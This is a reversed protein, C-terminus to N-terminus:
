FLWVFIFLVVRSAIRCAKESLVTTPCCERVFEDLSPYGNVLAYKSVKSRIWHRCNTKSLKRCSRLASGTWSWVLAPMNHRAKSWIDRRGDVVQNQLLHLQYPCSKWGWITWSKVDAVGQHIHWSNLISRWRWNWHRCRRFWGPGCFSIRCVSIGAWLYRITTGWGWSISYHLNRCYTLCSKDNGPTFVSTSRM